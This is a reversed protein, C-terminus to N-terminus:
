SARGMTPIERALADLDSIKFQILRKGVRYARLEGRAVYRRITRTSVGRYRAAASLGVMGSAPIPISEINIRM